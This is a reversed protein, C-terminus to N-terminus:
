GSVKKLGKWLAYRSKAEKVTMNTNKLVWAVFRDRSVSPNEDFFRKALARNTGARYGSYLEAANIASVQAASASQGAVNVLDRTSLKNARFLNAKDKGLLRVQLAKSQTRLWKDFSLDGAVQGNLSARTGENLSPGDIGMDEFSKVIPILISRCNWHRPPGDNFPLTTGDIPNGELDWSAGSYAMCIETTKDDFTSLQQYGRLVDENAKFSELRAASAVEATSQRVLTRAQHRSTDMFGKIVEGKVTGGTIRAATVGAAEGNEIGVRVTRMFKNQVTGSQAAWWDSSRAGEILTNRSLNNQVQKTLGKPSFSLLETRSSM